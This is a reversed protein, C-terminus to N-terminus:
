LKFIKLDSGLITKTGIGDVTISYSQTPGAFPNKVILSKGQEGETLFVLPLRQNWLDIIASGGLVGEKGYFPLEEGKSFSKGDTTFNPVRISKSVRDSDVSIAQYAKAGAFEGENGPCAGDSFGNGTEKRAPTGNWTKTEGTKLNQVQTKWDAYGGIHAFDWNPKDQGMPANDNWSVSGNAFLLSYFVSARNMEYSFEGRVLRILDYDPGMRLRQWFGKKVIPSHVGEMSITGFRVAKNHPDAIMQVCYNLCDRYALIGDGSKMESDNYGQALRNCFEQSNTAYFLRERINGDNDKFKRANAKSMLFYKSTENLSVEDTGFGNLGAFYDPYLNGDEAKVLGMKKALIRRAKMTQEFPLGNEAQEGFLLIDRSAPMDQDAINQATDFIPIWFNVMENVDKIATIKVDIEGDRQVIGQFWEVSFLDKKPSEYRYNYSRSMDIKLRSDKLTVVKAEGAKMQILENANLAFEPFTQNTIWTRTYRVAEPFEYSHWGFHTAYKLWKDWDISGDKERTVKQGGFFKNKPLKLPEGTEAYQPFMSDGRLKPNDLVQSPDNTPNKDWIHMFVIEPSTSNKNHRDDGLLPWYDKQMERLPYKMYYAHFSYPGAPLKVGRLLSNVEDPAIAVLDSNMLQLPLDTSGDSSKKTLPLLLKVKDGPLIQVRSDRGEVFSFRQDSGEVKLTGDQSEVVEFPKGPQEPEGPEVPAKIEFEGSDGGKCKTGEIKLTYKGVGLSFPVELTNNTPTVIKSQSGVSVKMETVGDGDFQFRVLDKTASIIRSITPGRKCMPLEPEEPEEPEEPKVDELKFVRGSFGMCETAEIHLTYERGPILERDFELEIVNNQPRFALEQDFLAGNSDFVKINMEYVEEAHFQFELGSKSINSISSISPGAKCMPLEPASAQFVEASVEGNFSIESGNSFKVKIINEVKM